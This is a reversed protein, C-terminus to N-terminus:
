EKAEAKRLLYRKRLDLIIHFILIVMVSITLYKFFHAIYYIVGAEKKAPNIHVKGRAFNKSAGPHCKGCTRPLNAKNISSRPDAQPLIDHYGHCSPCNAATKAGFKSAVGHFSRKYTEVREVPIGFKKLLDMNAHCKACTASVRTIYVSSTPDTHRKITHETHCDVCTAAEYEKKKVAV